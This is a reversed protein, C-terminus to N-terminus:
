FAPVAVPKAFRAALLLALFVLGAALLIGLGPVNLSAGGTIAWAFVM